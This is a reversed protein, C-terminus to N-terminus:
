QFQLNIFKSIAAPNQYVKKVIALNKWFEIRYNQLLLLGAEGLNKFLSYSILSFAV